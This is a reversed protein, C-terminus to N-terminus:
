FSVAYETMVKRKPRLTLGIGVAPQVTGPQRMLKPQWDLSLDDSVDFTQLHADVFADIGTLVYVVVMGIYSVELNKRYNDRITALDGIAYQELLPDNNLDDDLANRYAFKFKKHEKTNFAVFYSAVGLGGYVIPIKWYRKNFAQGSGPLIASFLVAKLPAKKKRDLAKGILEKAKSPAITDAPIEKNVVEGNQQPTPSITPKIAPPITDIGSNVIKGKGLKAKPKDEDQAFLAVSM